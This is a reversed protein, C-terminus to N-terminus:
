IMLLRWITMGPRVLAMDAPRKSLLNFPSIVSAHKAMRTQNMQGNQCHATLSATHIPPAFSQETSAAPAQQAKTLAFNLNMM